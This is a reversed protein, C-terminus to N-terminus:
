SLQFMQKQIIELINTRNKKLPTNDIIDTSFSQSSLQHYGLSILTLM